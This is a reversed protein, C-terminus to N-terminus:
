WWHPEHDERCDQLYAALLFALQKSLTQCMKTRFLTLFDAVVFFTEIESNLSSVKGGIASLRHWFCKSLSAWVV